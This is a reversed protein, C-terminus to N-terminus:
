QRREAPPAPAPAPTTAGTAPAEGRAANRLGSWVDLLLQLSLTTMGIAMFAYPIWLKPAWASNSVRGDSWAEWFFHWANIAVFACFILSLVDGAVLRWRNVRPSLMHELVEITVHGRKMQTFAAGMFTAVILLIISFEIEWDTPWKLLYRVVVEFVIVLSTVVITVGSLYGAWTNFAGLGRAFARGPSGGGGGGASAADPAAM